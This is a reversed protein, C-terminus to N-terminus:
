KYLERKRKQEEKTIKITVKFNSKNTGSCKRCLRKATGNCPALKKRGDEDTTYKSGSRAPETREIRRVKQTGCVDCNKM